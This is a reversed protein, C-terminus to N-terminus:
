DYISEYYIDNGECHSFTDYYLLLLNIKLSLLSNVTNKLYKNIKIHACAVACKNLNNQFM